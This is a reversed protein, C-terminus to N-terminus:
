GCNSFQLDKNEDENLDNKEDKNTIKNVGSSNSNTSSNDELTLLLPLMTLLQLHRLPLQQSITRYCGIAFITSLASMKGVPWAVTWYSMLYAYNFTTMVPIMM